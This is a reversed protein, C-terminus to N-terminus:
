YGYGHSHDNTHTHSYADDWSYHVHDNPHTHSYADDYSSHEHDRYYHEHDPPHDHYAVRTSEPASSVLSRVTHELEEIRSQADSLLDHLEVRDANDPPTATLTMETHMEARMADIIREAEAALTASEEETLTSLPTIPLPTPFTDSDGLATTCAIGVFLLPILLLPRM